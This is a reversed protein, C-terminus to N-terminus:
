SRHVDSPASAFLLMQSSPKVVKRSRKGTRQPQSSASPDTTGGDPKRREQIGSQWEMLDSAELANLMEKARTIVESPLGALRAVQIGYSKDAGGSHIKRLFIIQDNWERVAINFNKIRPFRRNMATLEHYHTAFLTKAKIKEHLYEAVSWAISIGDYTSTGRGIEDLIILSRRTANNLINATENMEVMFTSQGRSLDDSAGVRTFIRDVAGIRALKAPVFSGIQAMLVTLAVQRIYTSKGAMNPGTILMIQTQELDLRADNPVFGGKGMHMPDTQMIQELVAHRGDVIELEESDDVQPQTYNQQQAVTAFGALADLIALARATGQIAASAEAVKERVQQFLEFELKLSREEAGLIKTEIEKLEPTIFREANVVTQKRIYEPPVQNLNSKTIEIYYGFVSNFRIKLSKIGTRETEKQQLGAIWEKGSTLAARFGDLEKHYGQRILGGEKLALPPDEVIAEEILQCIEPFERLEACQAVAFPSRLESLLGRIEPVMRLSLKLGVLDRANGSNSSLRAIMRELDRIGDLKERFAQLLEPQKLFEAVVQNRERIPEVARLPRAIWERVMRAGMATVTRDLAWVLTNPTRGQNSELLELNRQTPLDLVMYDHANYVQIRHVHDLSRRLQNKLYHFMAGGASLALGLQSCGFGDLSQTKFHDLLALTATEKEFVWPDVETIQATYEHLEGKLDIHGAPILIEMPRIRKLEARLLKLDGLETLRFDGTTLDLCALGHASERTEKKGNGITSPAGPSPGFLAILFNNHQASLFRDTMMTGPSLIQTVERRIINKGTTSAAEEVQDCIAVKHGAQILRAIYGESAHHPMGCMPVGNRQTLTLGLQQSTIRADEFFMEYFDGLRFLLIVNAPIERKIKQYQQMMPTLTESM